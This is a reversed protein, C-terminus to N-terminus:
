KQIIYVKPRGATTQFKKVWKTTYPPVRFWREIRVRRMLFAAAAASGLIERRPERKPEFRSLSLGEYANTSGNFVLEFCFFFNESASIRAPSHTWRIYRHIAGSFGRWINGESSSGRASLLLLLWTGPALFLPM